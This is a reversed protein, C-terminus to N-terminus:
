NHKTTKKYARRKVHAQRKVVKKATKKIIKKTTKKTSKKKIPKKSGGETEESNHVGSSSGTNNISVSEIYTIIPNLIEDIESTMTIINMRLSIIRLYNNIIRTIESNIIDVDIKLKKHNDRYEQSNKNIRRLEEVREQLSRLKEM